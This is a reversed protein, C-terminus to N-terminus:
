HEHAAGAKGLDAKLIFSGSVVVPEGENLGDVVPVWGGLPVGTRIVKKLFWGNEGEVPVFVAAQGNIMQVAEEPIALAPESGDGSASIAAQAFMGTRLGSNGSAVEIRVAATRTALSVSPAIRALTGQFTRGGLAPVRVEATCGETVWGLKAEPVEALVWLTTTDAMVLLAGDAPSVLQGTTVNREVVEGAIGARVTFTPDIEGSQALSNTSDASMGLLQLRNRAATLAVRASRLAGEAAQYEAQRKQVETLAIGQSDEYLAKAREFSSRSLEVAPEAITVAAQRTLFDSQAEGLEPSDIVLLVDDADVKDGLGVDIQRVRGSLPSGIQVVKNLNFAVRAPVTTTEFLTRKRAPEVRIRHSRVAQPTLRVISPRYERVVVPEVPIGAATFRTRYEHPFDETFLAYSGTAPVEVAFRMEWRELTIQYLRPAADIRDGSRIVSPDSGFLEAASPIVAELAEGTPADVPLLVLKLSPEDPGPQLVLEVVGAEFKYVGGWEFPYKSETPGHHHDGHEHAHEHDHDHSGLLDPNCITCQSEPVGHEACWDGQAKFAAIQKASLSGAKKGSGSREDKCGVLVALVLFTGAIWIKSM